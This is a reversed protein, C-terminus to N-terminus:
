ADLKYGIGKLTKIYPIGLKKRLNKIHTDVVRTEGYFDYGWAKDLLNERTLVKGNNELLVALIEFEKTTLEVEEGNVSVKYGELDVMMEKLQIMRSPSLSSHTRRLLAEVRKIFVNFSFPKTIYDDVGLEFGKVQDKEEGLATLMIIPVLSKNRIIKCISYGDMNPLMVDLICLDYHGNQFMQIGEIGDQATNVEYDQSILFERILEQIDLDDEIVLIRQNM